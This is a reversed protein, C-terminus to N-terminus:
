RRRDTRLAAGASKVRLRWRLTLPDVAIYAYHPPPSADDSWRVTPLVYHPTSQIPGIPRMALTVIRRLRRRRLDHAWLGGNDGLLLLKGHRIADGSIPHLQEHAATWDVRDISVAGPGNLFVLRITRVPRPYDLPYAAALREARVDRRKRALLVTTGRDTGVRVVDSDAFRAAAARQEAALNRPSAPRHACGALM